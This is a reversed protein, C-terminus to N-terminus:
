LLCQRVHKRRERGVRSFGHKEVRRLRSALTVPNAVRKGECALGRCREPDLEGVVWVVVGGAPRHELADIGGRSGATLGHDVDRAACLQHRDSRKGGGMLAFRRAEVEVRCM